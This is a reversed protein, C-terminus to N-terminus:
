VKLEEACEACELLHNDLDLKEQDSIEDYVTLQILEKYKQHNM